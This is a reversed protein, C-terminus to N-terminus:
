DCSTYEKVVMDLRRTGINGAASTAVFSAYVEQRDIVVLSPLLAGLYDANGTEALRDPDLALIVPWVQGLIEADTAADFLTAEVSATLDPDDTVNNRLDGWEIVNSNGKWLTQM